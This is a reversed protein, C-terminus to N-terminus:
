AEKIGCQCGKAWLVDNECICTKPVPKPLDNGLIKDKLKRLADSTEQLSQGRQFNGYGPARFREEIIQIEEPTFEM